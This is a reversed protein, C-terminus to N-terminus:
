TRTRSSPAAIRGDARVVVGAIVGRPRQVVKLGDFWARCRSLADCGACTRLAAARAHEIDTASTPKGHEDITAEFLAANGKCAAGPLNPLGALLEITDTWSTVSTM